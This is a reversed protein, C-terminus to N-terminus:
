TNKNHSSRSFFIDLANFHHQPFVTDEITIQTGHNLVIFEIAFANWNAAFTYVKNM